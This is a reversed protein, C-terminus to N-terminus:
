SRNKLLLIGGFILTYIAFIWIPGISISIAPIKNFGELMGLVFGSLEKYPLFLIKLVAPSFFILALPIALLFLILPILPVIILNALPAILSVIGFHYIVLPLTIIQASLSLNLASKLKFLNPWKETWNELIPWVYFIGIISLFSLQFGADYRLLLPNLALMFAGAFALANRPASLRGVRVALLALFGMVGARLASASMGILIIYGALFASVIWFAKKRNIGAELLALMVMGAIISIHLGSISIIHSTGTASFINKWYESINSKYGLILALLFDARIGALSQEIKRKLYQKASLIAAYLGSGNGSSELSIDPRFMVAQIGYRMLYGRWSFEDDEKAIEIKGEAIIEDGYKYGAYKETRILIKGDLYEPKVTLNTYTLREDPEEVIVGRIIHMKEDALNQASNNSIRFASSCRLIGLLFLVLFGGALRTKKDIFLIIAAAAGLLVLSFGVTLFSAAFIGVIFYLCSFFFIKSKSM